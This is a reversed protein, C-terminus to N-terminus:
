PVPERGTPAGRYRALLRRAAACGTGADVGLLGGDGEVAVVAADPGLRLLLRELWPRESVRLRVRLRGGPLVEAGENPYQDRVWAAAAELELVVVPDDPRPRYTALAPPRKPPRFSRGTATARRVRDVRFLREAREPHSRALVYWQGSTSFVALPDVVRTTHADRGFSYYDIEVKEHETAARRLTGLVDPAAPTLEVDVTGGVGLVGSLKALARGLPGDADAGPVALLAAGGAVLALGEAPTLRLPREFYDAYRIWVRGDAVDVDILTDPTYPPLGCLWLLDLDEVLQAEPVGFREGVEALTPGDQAVIWPVMALLRRLRDDATVRAM